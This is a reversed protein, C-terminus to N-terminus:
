QIEFVKLFIMAIIGLIIGTWGKFNIKEKFFFRAVLASIIMNGGASFSFIVVPSAIATAYTVLISILFLSLAAIMGPVVLKKSMPKIEEKEFAAVIFALPITLISISLFSVFSFLTVNPNDSTMTFLQQFVMTFGESLLIGALLLFTKINFKGFVGKSSVILLYAAAIFLLLGLWQMVSMPRHFFFQNAFCQVILGATAFLSTLCMIGSKMASVSCVTSSFISIGTLVGYIIVPLDFRGFKGSLFASGASLLASLFFEYMCFIVLSSGQNFLNSVKKSTYNQVARFFYVVAMVLATTM